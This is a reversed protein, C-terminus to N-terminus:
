HSPGYLNLVVVGMLILAIGLISFLNVQEKWVIISLLTTLVIGIGSWLAYAVNLSLSKMAISLFVFCLGYASLAGVSPWLVTFGASAKLLNTGVLEGLIAVMLFFM